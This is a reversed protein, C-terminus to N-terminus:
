SIGDPIKFPGSSKNLIVMLDYEPNNSPFRTFHWSPYDEKIRLTYETDNNKTRNCFTNFAFRCVELKQDHYMINVIIELSISKNYMVCIRVTDEPDRSLQDIIRLPCSPNKVLRARVICDGSSALKELVHLPTSINSALARLVVPDTELSLQELVQALENM